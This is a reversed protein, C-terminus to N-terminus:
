CAVGCNCSEGNKGGVVRYDSVTKGPLAEIVGELELETLM